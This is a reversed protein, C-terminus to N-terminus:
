SEVVPTLVIDRCELLSFEGGDTALIRQGLGLSYGEGRDVWETRRAMRLAGDESTETGPYRTPIHGSAEGGNAWVFQAPTWVLDRLDTPAELVIRSIRCFPIWYYHGEVIAELVPGMRPDSDAIWEFPLAGEGDATPTSGTSGRPDLTIKGPTAPAAEFAADRLARAAVLEGKGILENARVLNGVWELPEGLLIPKRKGAFIEARLVECGLVPEFIRALMLTDNNMESLVKLQTMARDWSGRLCLLQFLFTRLKADAPNSRVESQLSALAEELKGARIYDKTTM